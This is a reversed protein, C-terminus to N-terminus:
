KPICIAVMVVLTLGITVRSLLSGQRALFPYLLALSTPPARMRSRSISTSIRKDKTSAGSRDERCCLYQIVDVNGGHDDAEQSHQAGM